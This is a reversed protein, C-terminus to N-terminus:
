VLGPRFVSLPKFAPSSTCDLSLTFSIQRQSLPDLTFSSNLYKHPYFCINCYVSVTPGRPRQAFRQLAAKSTGEPSATSM